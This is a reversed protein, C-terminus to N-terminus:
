HSGLCKPSTLDYSQVIRHDLDCNQCGHNGYSKPRCINIGQTNIHYNLRKLEGLLRCWDIKKRIWKMLGRADIGVQCMYCCM